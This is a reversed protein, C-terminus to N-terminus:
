DKQAYAHRPILAGCYCCQFQQRPVNMEQLEHPCEARKRRLEHRAITELRYKESDAM